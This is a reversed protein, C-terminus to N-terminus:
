GQQHKTASASVFTHVPMTEMPEEIGVERAIPAVQEGFRDAAAQSEWVDVVWFGDRGQGTVHALLGEIGGDAPTELRSQGQTLQRVVEEYRGQTLSPVHHIGLIPM